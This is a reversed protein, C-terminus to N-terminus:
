LGGLLLLALTLILEIDDSEVLLFLIIAILLIDGIEMDKFFSLLGSQPPKEEKRAAAPPPNSESKSSKTFNPMVPKEPPKEPEEWLGGSRMYRSYM